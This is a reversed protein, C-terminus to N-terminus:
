KSYIKEEVLYLKKNTPNFFFNLYRINKGCDFPVECIVSKASVYCLGKMYGIKCQKIWSFSKLQEPLQIEGSNETQYTEIVPYYDACLVKEVDRSIDMESSFDSLTKYTAVLSVCVVLLIVCIFCKKLM